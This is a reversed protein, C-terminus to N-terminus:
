IIVLIFLNLMIFESIMIYPIFFVPAYSLGCTKGDICGDAPTRMCDYMIYVWDEGTSM